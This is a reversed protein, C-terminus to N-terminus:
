QLEEKKFPPGSDSSDPKLPVHAEVNPLRDLTGHSQSPRQGSQHLQWYLEVDLSNPRTSGNPLDPFDPRPRSSSCDTFRAMAYRYLHSADGTATGDPLMIAPTLQPFQTVIKEGVIWHPEALRYRELAVTPSDVLRSGAAVIAGVVTITAVTRRKFATGKRQGNLVGGVAAGVAGLLALADSLKEVRDAEDRTNNLATVCSRRQSELAKDTVPQQITIPRPISVHCGCLVVVATLLLTRQGGM